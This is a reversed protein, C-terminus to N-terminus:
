ESKLLFSRAAGTIKNYDYLKMRLLADYGIPETCARVAMRGLYDDSLSPTIVVKGTQMAVEEVIAKSDKGTLKDWDFTLEEYTKGTDTIPTRLKHTFTFGSKEAIRQAEKFEKEDIYDKDTPDTNKVEEHNTKM